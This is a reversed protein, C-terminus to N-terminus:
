KGYAKNFHGLTPEEFGRNQLSQANRLLFWLLYVTLNKSKGIVIVKNM